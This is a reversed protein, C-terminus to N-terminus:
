VIRSHLKKEKTKRLIAYIGYGLAAGLTNLFLDDVDTTRDLPIQVTEIVLSIYFGALLTGGFRKGFLYPTMIGIPIFVGVNGLVNFVFERRADDSTSCLALQTIITDFPILRLQNEGSNVVFTQTFLLILYACFFCFVVEHTMDAGPRLINTKRNSLYMGRLLMVVPMLVFLFPVGDNLFRCIFGAAGSM